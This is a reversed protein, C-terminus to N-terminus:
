IFIRQQMVYEEPSILFRAHPPEHKIQYSAARSHQQESLLRKLM